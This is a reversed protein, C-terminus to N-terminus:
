NEGWLVSCRGLCRIVPFFCCDFLTRIRRIGGRLRYSQLWGFLFCSALGREEGAEQTGADQRVLAGEDEVQLSHVVDVAGLTEHVLSDVLASLVELPAVYLFCRLRPSLTTPTLPFATRRTLLSLVIYGSQPLKNHLAFNLFGSM